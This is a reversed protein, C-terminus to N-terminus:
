SNSAMFLPVLLQKATQLNGDSSVLRNGRCSLKVLSPLKALEDVVRWETINNHDLNLDKLVPFMATRGGASLPFVSDDFQLATLGTESLILKQLSCLFLSWMFFQLMDMLSQLVCRQLETINNEDVTLEELQPWLPAWELIQPWTLDCSILSLVTLGGFAPCLASPESSLRLRNYSLFCRFLVFILMFFRGGSSVMTEKSTVKEENKQYVQQLATLYDVGFSVKAPRVFSGGTPHRCTFYQVGGHSGSHKGRVPQDWEIGLWLGATPPVPGVYRVTARERSCSVRKTLDDLL